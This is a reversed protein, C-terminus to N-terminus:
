LEDAKDNMIINMYARVVCILLAVTIGLGVALVATTIHGLIEM